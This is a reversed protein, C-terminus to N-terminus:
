YATPDMPGLLLTRVVIAFDLGISWRRIYELDRAIRGAMSELNPTEGRWGEVQALGTIGPKALFRGNYDPIIASWYRDHALAHPRPGILSMQGLFVNLLNPLEDVSTRRLLRGVRTVRGDGRSAQVVVDGDEAVTMTRFKCIVFPAGNLGTRRQRFFAPGPSELRILLAILALFPGLLLLLLSAGAIDVLRKARANYLRTAGGELQPDTELDLIRACDLAMIPTPRDPARSSIQLNAFLTHAKFLKRGQPSCAAAHFVSASSKEVL